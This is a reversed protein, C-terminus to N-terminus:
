ESLRVLAAEYSNVAATKLSDYRQRVKLPPDCVRQGEIYSMASFRKIVEDVAALEDLTAVKNYNEIAKAYLIIRKEVFHGKYSKFLSDVTSYYGVRVARISDQMTYYETGLSEQLAEDNENSHAALMGAVAIETDIVNDILSHIGKNEAFQESANKYVEIQKDFINSCATFLSLVAVLIITKRM